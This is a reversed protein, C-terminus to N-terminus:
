IQRGVLETLARVDCGRETLAGRVEDDGEMLSLAEDFFRYTLYFAFLAVRHDVSLGAAIDRRLAFVADCENLYTHGSRSSRGHRTPGPIPKIHLLEFGHGELYQCAQWFKGAGRMVPEALLTAELEVGVVRRTALDPEAGRLISLETGQTDLKVFIPALSDFMAFVSALTLTDIQVPRLPFFYSLDRVRHSMSPTVIPELLSSGSDVNTVYLTQVGGHESLGTHVSRIKSPWAWSDVYGLNAVNPEVAVWQTQPSALLLNWRLHPYYSAGVDVCAVPPLHSSLLAKLRSEASFQKLWRKAITPISRKLLTIASM